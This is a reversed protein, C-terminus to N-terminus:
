EIEKSNHTEKEEINEVINQQMYFIKEGTTAM